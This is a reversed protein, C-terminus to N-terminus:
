CDTMRLVADGTFVVTSYTNFTTMRLAAFSGQIESKDQRMKLLEIWLCRM